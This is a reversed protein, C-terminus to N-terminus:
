VVSAICTHTHTHTHIGTHTHAHTRARAHTQGQCNQITIDDSASDGTVQARWLALRTDGPQGEWASRCTALQKLKRWSLGHYWEPVATLAIWFRDDESDQLLSSIERFRRYAKTGDEKTFGPILTMLCNILHTACRGQPKENLYTPEFSAECRGVAWRLYEGFYVAQMLHAAAADAHTQIVARAVIKQKADQSAEAAAVNYPHLRDAVVRSVVASAYVGVNPASLPPADLAPLLAHLPPRREASAPLMLFPAALLWSHVLMDISGTLVTLGAHM